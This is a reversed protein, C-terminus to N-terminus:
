IFFSNGVSALQEVQVRSPDPRLPRLAALAADVGATSGVSNLNFVTVPVGFEVVRAINDAAPPALTFRM